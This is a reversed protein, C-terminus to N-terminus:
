DMDKPAVYDVRGESEDLITVGKERAMEKTQATTSALMEENRKHLRARGEQYAVKPKSMLICDGVIIAGDPTKEELEVLTRVGGEETEVVYGKAKKRYVSPRRVWRYERNPDTSSPDLDMFSPDKHANGQVSVRSAGAPATTPGEDGAQRHKPAQSM